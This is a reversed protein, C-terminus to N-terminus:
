ELNKRMLALRPLTRNSPSIEAGLRTQKFEPVLMGQWGGSIRREREAAAQAVISLLKGRPTKTGRREVDRFSRNASRALAKGLSADFVDGGVQEFRRGRRTVREM